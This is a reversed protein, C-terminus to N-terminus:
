EIRGLKVGAKMIKVSLGFALSVVAIPVIAIFFGKAVGETWYGAVNLGSEIPREIGM